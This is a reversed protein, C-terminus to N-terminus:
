GKGGKAYEVAIKRLVRKKVSGVDRQSVGLIVATDRETLDEFMCRLQLVEKDSLKTNRIATDLADVYSMGTYDGVDRRELLHSYLKISQEVTKIIAKEKDKANELAVRYTGTFAGYNIKLYKEGKTYLISDKRM